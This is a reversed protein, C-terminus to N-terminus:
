GKGTLVHKLYARDNTDIDMEELESLADKIKKKAEILEVMLNAVLNNGCLDQWPEGYRLAKLAGNHEQYVTYKGGAIDIYYDSSHKIINKIASIVDPCKSEGKKHKQGCATCKEKETGEITKKAMELPSEKKIGASEPCHVKPDHHKGCYSYKPFKYKKNIKRCTDCKCFSTM